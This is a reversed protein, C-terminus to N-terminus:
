ERNLLNSNDTIIQNTNVFTFDNVIIIQPDWPFDNDVSMLWEDDRNAFEKLRNELM